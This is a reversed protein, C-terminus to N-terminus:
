VRVCWLLTFSPLFFFRFSPLFSPLFFSYFCLAYQVTELVWHEDEEAKTTNHAHICEHTQTHARTHLHPLSLHAEQKDRIVDLQEGASPPHQVPCNSARILTESCAAEMWFSSFVSFCFFLSLHPFFSSKYSWKHGDWQYWHTHTNDTWKYSVILANRSCEEQQQGPSHNITGRHECSQEWSVTASTWDGGFLLSRIRKLKRADEVIGATAPVKQV